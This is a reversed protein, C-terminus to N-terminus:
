EDSLDANSGILVSIYEKLNGDELTGDCECCFLKAYPAVAEEVVEDYGCQACHFHITATEGDALEIKTSHKIANPQRELETKSNPGHFARAVYASGTSTTVEVYAFDNDCKYTACATCMCLLSLMIMFIVFKKM